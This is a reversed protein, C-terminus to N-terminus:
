PWVRARSATSANSASPRVGGPFSDAPGSFSSEGAAVPSDVSRSDSSSLSFRASFLRRPSVSSVWARRASSSAFFRARCCLRSAASVITFRADVGMGSNIGRSLLSTVRTRTLTRIRGVSIAAMTPTRGCPLDTRTVAFVGFSLHYRTSTSPSGSAKTKASSSSPAAVPAGTPSSAERGGGGGSSGSDTFDARASVAAM